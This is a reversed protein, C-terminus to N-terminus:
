RLRSKWLPTTYGLGVSVASGKPSLRVDLVFQDNWYRSFYFGLGVTISCGFRLEVPPPQSELLQSLARSSTSITSGFLWSGEVGLHLSLQHPFFIPKYGCELGLTLTYETLRADGREDLASRCESSIDVESKSTLLGLFTKLRLRVYSSHLRGEGESYFPFVEAFAGAEAGYGADEGGQVTPIACSM